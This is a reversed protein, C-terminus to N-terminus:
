GTSADAVAEIMQNLDKGMASATNGYSTLAEESPTLGLNVLKNFGEVAQELSYPTTDAFDALAKFATEAKEASGTSTILAANLVDFTRAVDVTKRLSAIAAAVAAAPGAFKLFTSTLSSTAKEASAGSKSLNNLRKSATQAELSEVRIQLKAIDSM